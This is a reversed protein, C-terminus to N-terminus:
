SNGDRVVSTDSGSRKLYDEADKLVRFLFTTGGQFKVGYPFSSGAMTSYGQKGSAPKREVTKPTKGKEWTSEPKAKVGDGMVCRLMDPVSEEGVVVVGAEVTPTTVIHEVGRFEVFTDSVFLRYVYMAEISPADGSFGYMDCSVRFIKRPGFPVSEASAVRSTVIESFKSEGEQPLYTKLEALVSFSRAVLKEISDSESLFSLKGLVCERCHNFTRKDRLVGSSPPTSMSLDKHLDELKSIVDSYGMERGLVFQNDGKILPCLSRIVLALRNSVVPSRSNAYQWTAASVSDLSLIVVLLSYLGLVSTDGRGWHLSSSVLPKMSEYSDFIFQPEFISDKVKFNHRKVLSSFYMNYAKKLNSSARSPWNRSAGFRFFRPIRFVYFVAFCSRCNNGGSLIYQKPLKFASCVPPELSSVLRLFSPVVWV